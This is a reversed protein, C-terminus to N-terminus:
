RSTEKSKQALTLRITRKRTRGNEERYQETVELYTSAIKTIYGNNDGMPMGPKVVYGKGKPDVVLASNEKMGVIIGAVRFKSVEFSQIPLMDETRKLKVAPAAPKAPAEETVFPKFPDKKFNFDYQAQASKVSSAQQQVPRTLPAAKHAEPQPVQPPQPEEKKACGPLSVVALLLVFAPIRNIGKKIM